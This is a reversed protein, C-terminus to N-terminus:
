ILTEPEAIFEIRGGTTWAAREAPTLTPWYTRWVRPDFFRFVVVQGDPLQAQLFKRLHRRLEDMPADSRCLIGWAKGWGDKEWIARLVCEDDLNVLHPAVREVASHIRGAYLCVHRSWALFVRTV